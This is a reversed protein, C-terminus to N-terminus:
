LGPRMADHQAERGEELRETVTFREMTM